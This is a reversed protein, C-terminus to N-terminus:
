SSIIKDESSPGVKGPSSLPLLCHPLLSTHAWFDLALFRSELKLAPPWECGGQASPSLLEGCPSAHGSHPKHEFGLRAEDKSM